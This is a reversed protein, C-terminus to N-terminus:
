RKPPMTSITHQLKKIMAFIKYRLCQLDVRNEKEPTTNHLDSYAYSNKLQFLFERIYYRTRESEKKYQCAILEFLSKLPFIIISWRTAWGEPWQISVPTLWFYRAACDIGMCGHRLAVIFSSIDQYKNNYNIRDPGSPFIAAKRAEMEQITMDINLNSIKAHCSSYRLWALFHEFIRIDEFGKPPTNLNKWFLASYGAVVLKVVQERSYREDAFRITFNALFEIAIRTFIHLVQENNENDIMELYASLYNVHDRQLFAYARPLIIWSTTIEDFLLHLNAPDMYARLRDYNEQPTLLTNGPVTTLKRDAQVLLGQKVADIERQIDPRLPVVNGSAVSLTSWAKSALSFLKEIFTEDFGIKVFAPMICTALFEDTAAESAHTNLTGAIGSYIDWAQKELDRLRQEADIVSPPFDKGYDAANWLCFIM